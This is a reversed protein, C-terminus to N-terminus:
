VRAVGDVEAVEAVLPLSVDDLVKDIVRFFDFGYASCGLFFREEVGGGWCCCGSDCDDSTDSGALETGGKLNM